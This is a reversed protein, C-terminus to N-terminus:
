RLSANAYGRWPDPAVTTVHTLWDAPGLAWGAAWARGKTRDSVVDLLRGRKVDVLGTVYRTPATPTAKLFTTENLGLSSVGGLRAPDSVLMRGQERVARMITHWGVCLDRVIAAVAHTDKGVRRCAEARARETLVARPQIVDTHETWTGVACAPEGCRWLRRRWVLVV